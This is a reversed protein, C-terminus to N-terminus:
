TEEAPAWAENGDCEVYKMKVVSAARQQIPSFPNADVSRLLDEIVEELETIRHRLEQSRTM